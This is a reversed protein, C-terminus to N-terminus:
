SRRLPVPPSVREADRAAVWQRADRMLETVGEPVPASVPGVLRGRPRLAVVLASLMVATVGEGAIAGRLCDPALPLRETAHVISYGPGAPGGVPNVLLLSVGASDDLVTALPAAHGELVVVGGPEVLDLQARARWSEAEPAQLARPLSPMLARGGGTFDVGGEAILYQTRCIPCGLSGAVVHRGHVETVAAVLWTSEHPEPCRLIDVLEIYM